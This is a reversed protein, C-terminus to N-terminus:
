LRPSKREYLVHQVDSLMRLILVDETTLTYTEGNRLTGFAALRQHIHNLKEELNAAHTVAGKDLLWEVILDISLKHNTEGPQLLEYALYARTVRRSTLAKLQAQKGESPILAKASAILAERNECGDLAATLLAIYENKNIHIKMM